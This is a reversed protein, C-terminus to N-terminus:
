HNDSPNRLDTVAIISTPNIYTEYWPGNGGPTFTGAITKYIRCAEEVATAGDDFGGTYFRQGNSLHVVYETAKDYDEVPLDTTPLTNAIQEVYELMQAQYNSLGGAAEHMRM